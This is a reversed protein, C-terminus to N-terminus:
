FPWYCGPTITPLFWLKNKKVNQGRRTPEVCGLARINHTLVSVIKSRRCGLSRGYALGEPNPSVLVLINTKPQCLSRSCCTSFDPGIGLIRHTRGVSVVLSPSISGGAQLVLLGCISFHGSISGGAQLVLLGRISFHGSTHM